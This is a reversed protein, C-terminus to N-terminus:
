CMEARTQATVSQDQCYMTFSTEKIGFVHVFDCSLVHTCNVKLLYVGELVLWSVVQPLRAAYCM